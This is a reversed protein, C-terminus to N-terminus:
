EPLLDISLCRAARSLRVDKTALPIGLRLAAELYAADYTTLSFERGLAVLSQWGTMKPGEEVRIPLKSAEAMILSIDQPKIRQRKEAMMLANTFEFPWIAPVVAEGIALIELLSDSASDSEDELFWSIAISCDVVFAPM